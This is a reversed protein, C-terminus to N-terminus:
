GSQAVLFELAVLYGNTGLGSIVGLCAGSVITQHRFPERAFINSIHVEIVPTPISAVADRLAVSTHAFGGPNLIIGRARDAAAHICDILEGEHNSQFFELPVNLERARASLRENLAALTENGYVEPERLGLRNLNPGNLVLIPKSM